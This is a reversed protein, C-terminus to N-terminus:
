KQITNYYYHSTAAAIPIKIGLNSLCNLKWPHILSNTMKLCDIPKLGDDTQAEELAM